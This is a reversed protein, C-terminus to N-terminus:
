RLVEGERLPRDPQLWVVGDGSAILCGQSAVLLVKGPTDSALYTSFHVKEGGPLRGYAPYDSAGARVRDLIQRSPASWDIRGDAPTRRRWYKGKPGIIGQAVPLRDERLLGYLEVLMDAAMEALDRSIRPYAHELGFRRSRTMLIDGQDIEPTMRHITVGLEREGRAIAWQVAHRGRYAPLLSLHANFVGQPFRALIARTLIRGYGSCFATEALGQCNEAEVLSIGEEGSPAPGTEQDWVLAALAGPHAQSLRRLAIEGALGGGFLVIKM